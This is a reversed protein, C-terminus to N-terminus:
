KWHFILNALFCNVGVEEDIFEVRYKHTDLIPNDNARGISNGHTDRKRGIVKERSYSDGRPLM